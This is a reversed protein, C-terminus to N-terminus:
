PGITEIHNCPYIRRNFPRTTKGSKSIKYVNRTFPREAEVAEIDDDGNDDKGNSLVPDDYYTYELHITKTAEQEQDVKFNQLYEADDM